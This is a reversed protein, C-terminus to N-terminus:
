LIVKIECKMKSAIQITSVCKTIKSNLNKISIKSSLLLTITPLKKVLM